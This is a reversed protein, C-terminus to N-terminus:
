RRAVHDSSLPGRALSLMSALVGTAATALLLLACITLETMNGGRKELESDAHRVDDHVEHALSAPHRPLRRLGRSVAGPRRWQRIRGASAHDVPHPRVGAGVGIREDHAVIDVVGIVVSFM